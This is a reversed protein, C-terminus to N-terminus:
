DNFSGPVIYLLNLDTKEWEKRSKIQIKRNLLKKFRDKEKDEENRRRPSNKKKFINLYIVGNTMEYTWIFVCVCVRACMCLFMSLYISLYWCFFQSVSLHISLGSYVSFLYISLYFCFVQYVSSYVSMFMCFISLYISLYISLDWKVYICSGCLACLSVAFHNIGRSITHECRRLQTCELLKGVWM